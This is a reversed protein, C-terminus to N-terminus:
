PLPIILGTEQAVLTFVAAIILMCGVMVANITRNEGFLEWHSRKM